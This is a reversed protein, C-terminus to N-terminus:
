HHAGHYAESLTQVLAGAKTLTEEYEQEPDSDLVVAGGAHFTLKDGSLAMTRIVISSDMAGDFGIFGISGCYPGRPVTELENIIEMARVKPAGTISGGPFSAQLLEVPGKGTALQGEVVSVLHHVTEFSELGCLQPVQITGPSCVKSLDNRLLDVIMINEAWDKESVELSQANTRDEEPLPSRPATGKIPRTQVHGDRCQIFREPSASTITKNDLKIYAAFPAPNVARLRNYLTFTNLNNPIQCQFRQSLNVEFIDGQLIYDRARQVANQYYQQTFNSTIQDPKIQGYYTHSSPTKDLYYKIDDLRQNAREQRCHTASEPFGTSILWVQQEYHDFAIIVDYFGLAMLPWDTKRSGGLKQPELQQNLEYSFYGMVGGQFPPLGDISTLPFEDLRQSLFNLADSTQYRRGNYFLEHEYAYLKAFPEVAIYSYRGMEPHYRASDLWIFGDLQHLLSAYESVPHYPLAEYIMNM